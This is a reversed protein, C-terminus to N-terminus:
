ANRIRQLWDLVGLRKAWENVYKWDLNQVCRILTRVDTAQKVSKSGFGWVLKSLLLDEPTIIWISQDGKTHRVRRAFKQREFENQKLTVFDIKVGSASHIVNFMGKRQVAEHAADRSTYWGQASPYLDIVADVQDDLLAIVIDIDNTLRPEAHFFLAFGGTLMYPIGLAELADATRTLVDAQEPMEQM